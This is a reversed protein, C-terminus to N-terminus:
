IKKTDLVLELGGTADQAKVRVVQYTALDTRIRDDIRISRENGQSDLAPMTIRRYAVLSINLSSVLNTIDPDRVMEMSAVTIPVDQYKIVYPTTYTRSTSNYTLGLIRAIIGGETIYSSVNQRGIALMEAFNM